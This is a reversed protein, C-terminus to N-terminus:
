PPSVQFTVASDARFMYGGPKGDTGYSTLTVTHDKAVTYEFVTGMHDRIAEDGLGLEELSGPLEGHTRNWDELAAQVGALRERTVVAPAERGRLFLLGAGMVVLCVVVVVIAKKETSM